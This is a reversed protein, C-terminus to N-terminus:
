IDLYRVCIVCILNLLKIKFNRDYFILVDPYAM